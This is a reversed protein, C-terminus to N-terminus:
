ALLNVEDITEDYLHTKSFSIRDPMKAQIKKGVVRAVLNLYNNVM